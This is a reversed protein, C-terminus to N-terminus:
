TAPEPEPLSERDPEANRAAALRWADVALLLTAGAIVLGEQISARNADAAAAHRAAPTRYEYSHEYDFRVGQFSATCSTFAFIPGIVFALLFRGWRRLVLYGFGWFLAGFWLLWLDGNQDSLGSAFCSVAGLLPICQFLVAVVMLVRRQASMTGTNAQM